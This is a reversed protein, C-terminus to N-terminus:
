TRIAVLAIARGGEAKGRSVQVDGFGAEILAQSTQATWAEASAAHMAAAWDHTLSVLAAGSKMVRALERATGAIPDCLQLTNVAIAGDFAGDVAPVRDATTKALRVVGAGIAARNRRTALKLMAASPDVGLVSGRTLRHALGEVGVGPGFGLVLVNDDDKPALREVAEAEAEANRRAMIRGILAAGPGDFLQSAM